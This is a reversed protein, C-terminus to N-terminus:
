AQTRKNRRMLGMVVAGAMVGVGGPEPIVALEAEGVTGGASLLGVFGNIDQVNVMGDGSFDGVKWWRVWPYAAEFTEVSGLLMVFPNIDQANVDGDGNLDGPRDQRVVLFATGATYEMEWSMWDGLAPGIVEDFEGTRGRYTLVPYRDGAEPRWETLVEVTLRGALEVNGVVKLQDMSVGPTMGGIQVYLNGSAEQVYDGTVTPTAPRWALGPQPGPEWLTVEGRNRVKGSVRGYLFVTGDRRVSVGTADEVAAAESGIVVRGSTARVQGGRNVTLGSARMEGGESAELRAGTVIFDASGVVIDWDVTLLSGVGTAIVEGSSEQGYGIEVRRAHIAGGYEAGLTGSGWLGASVDSTELLSQAGKVRVTGIGGTEFGLLLSDVEARGPSQVEGIRVTGVGAHGVRLEHTKLQWYAGVSENSQGVTLEGQGGVGEGVTVRPFDLLGNYILVDARGEVGVTVSSGAGGSWLSAGDLVGDVMQVSGQSGSNVGLRHSVAGVGVWRGYEILAYGLGDIGLDTSGTEWRGGDVRVGGDSGAEVGAVVRGTSLRGNSVVTVLGSGGIGMAMSGTEMQGTGSWADITLNGSSGALEGMRTQGEVKLQGAHDFRVEAEGGKGVTLDGKVTWASAGQMLVTGTVGQGEGLVASRTQLISSYMTISGDSVSGVTLTDDFLWTSPGAPITLATDVVLGARATSAMVVGAAMAALGARRLTRM